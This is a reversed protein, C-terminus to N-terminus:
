ESGKQAAILMMAEDKTDQVREFLHNVLEVTVFKSCKLVDIVAMNLFEFFPEPNNPDFLVPELVNNNNM